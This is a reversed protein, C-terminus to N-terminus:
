RQVRYEPTHPEADIASSSIVTSRAHIRLSRAVRSGLRVASCRSRDHRAPPGAQGPRPRVEGAAGRDLTMDDREFYSEPTAWPRGSSVVRLIADSVDYISMRSERLLAAIRRVLESMRWGADRRPRESRGNVGSIALKRDPRFAGQRVGVGPQIAM